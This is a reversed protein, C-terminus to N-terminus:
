RYNSFKNIASTINPIFKTIGNVTKYSGPYSVELVNSTNYSYLLDSISNVSVITANTDVKNSSSRHLAVIDVKYIKNTITSMISKILSILMQSRQTTNSYGQYELLKIAADGRITKSGHTLIVNDGDKLDIPVNYTIGSIYEIIYSVDELDYISCTDFDFGTLASIKKTLFSVGLDRYVENLTMERGKVTVSLSAPIYTYTYENKTSNGRLIVFDTAEIKKSGISDVTLSVSKENRPYRAVDYASYASAQSPKYNTNILLMSFSSSQEASSEGNSSNSDDQEVNDISNVNDASIGFMPGLCEVLVDSVFYAAVGFVAGSIILAVIFNRLSRLM